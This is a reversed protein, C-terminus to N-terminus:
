DNKGCFKKTSIRDEGIDPDENSRRRFDERLVETFLSQLDDDDEVSERLSQDRTQDRSSNTNTLSDLTRNLVGRLSGDFSLASASGVAVRHRSPMGFLYADSFYSPFRESSQRVEDAKLTRNWNSSIRSINESSFLDLSPADEPLEANIYCTSLRSEAPQRQRVKPRVVENTAGNSVNQEHSSSESCEMQNEAPETSQMRTNDTIQSEPLSTASSHAVPSEPSTKRVIFHEVESLSVRSSAMSALSGIHQSVLQSAMPGLSQMNFPFASGAPDADSISNSANAGFFETMLSDTFASQVSQSPHLIQSLLHIAQFFTQSCLSHVNSAFQDDTLNADLGLSCLEYARQEFFSLLSRRGDIDEQFRLGELQLSSDSHILSRVRSRMLDESFPRNLLIQEEIFQRFPSRALRLPHPNGTSVM